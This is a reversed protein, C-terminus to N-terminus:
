ARMETMMMEQGAKMEKLNADSKEQMVEKRAHHIDMRSVLTDQFIESKENNAGIKAEMREQGDTIEELWADM